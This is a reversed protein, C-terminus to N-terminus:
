MQFCIFDSLYEVIEVPLTTLCSDRLNVKQAIIFPKMKTNPKTHIKLAQDM